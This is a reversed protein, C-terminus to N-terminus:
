RFRLVKGWATSTAGDSSPQLPAAAALLSAACVRSSNMQNERDAVPRSDGVASIRGAEAQTFGGILV